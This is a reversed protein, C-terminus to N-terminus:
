ARRVVPEDREAQRRGLDGRRSQDREGAAVGRQRQRDHGEGQPQRGSSRRGQGRQQDVGRDRGALQDHAEAQDVGATYPTRM